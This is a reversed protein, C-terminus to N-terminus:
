SQSFYAKVRQKDPKGSATLPISQAYVVRAPLEIKTLVLSLDVEEDAVIMVCPVEGAKQDPVGVACVDKVGGLSLIKREIEVASLNNGNRIIIDKKRGNIHLYGQEDLYGLDGTHLWGEQDIANRTAQEDGWYGMMVAPSQVCIEGEDTLKGRNMPLFVGVTTRRLERETAIPAGTIGICESMGYVPVLTLGLTDEIFSFQEKSVPAGGIVGVRLSTKSGRQKVEEAVANAFSPVGDLRTIAYKELCDTIYRPTVEKPFLLEYRYFLATTLVALGFVHHIPLMEMSIDSPLYCGGFGYNLTHNLYNYQSLTVAKSNGTSGSTFIVVAPAHVDIDGFSFEGESELDLPEGNVQWDGDASIGRGAQENTLYAKVPFSIGCESIAKRAPIHPDTLVATVGMCQLAYFLVATGLSRTARLVAVDGKSLVPSLRHCVGCIRGMTERASLAYEETFLFRKEPAEKAFERMCELLSRNTAEM